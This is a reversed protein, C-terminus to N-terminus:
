RRVRSRLYDLQWALEESLEPQRELVDLYESVATQFDQVAALADEGQGFIGTPRDTVIWYGDGREFRINFSPPMNDADVTYSPPERSTLYTVPVLEHPSSSGVPSSPETQPETTFFDVSM